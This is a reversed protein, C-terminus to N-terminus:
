SNIKAMTQEKISDTLAVIELWVEGRVAVYVEVCRSCLYGITTKHSVGLGRDPRPRGPKQIMGPGYADLAVLVVSDRHHEDDIVKGCIDCTIKIAM